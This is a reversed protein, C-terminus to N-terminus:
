RIINNNNNNKLKIHLSAGHAPYLTLFGSSNAKQSLDEPRCSHLASATVGGAKVLIFRGYFLRIHCFKFKTNPTGCFV